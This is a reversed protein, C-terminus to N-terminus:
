KRMWAPCCAPETELPKVEGSATEVIFVSMRGDVVRNFALINGQPSWHPTEVYGQEFFTLPTMQGSPVEVIYINSILAESSVDAQPDAPNERVVYAIRTGDPSWNPAYGHGADAAALKRPESGDANMVWLEGMTFPTQTDPIKLFAIQEGDPSFRAFSIYHSPDSYLRTIRRGDNSALSLESGYGLGRSLTFTFDRSNPQAALDYTFEPISLADQGGDVYARLIRPSGLSDVKLYAARGDSQWALFHSDTSPFPQSTSGTELDFLLVTQGGPCNLELLLFSGVPAPFLDFLGCNSPLPFPIERLLRLDETYELLAPPSFRYVLLSTQLSSPPHPSCSSLFYFTILSCYVTLLSCHDTLLPFRRGPHLTFFSNFPM